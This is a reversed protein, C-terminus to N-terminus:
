GTILYATFVCTGLPCGKIEVGGSPSGQVGARWVVAREKPLSLHKSLFTKERTLVLQGKCMVSFCVAARSVGDWGQDKQDPAPGGSHPNPSFTM